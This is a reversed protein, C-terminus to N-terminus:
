AHSVANRIETKFREISLNKVSEHIESTSYAVGTKQFTNLANALSEGTAETFFIGNKGPQIVEQIGGRAISIVPVGLALAEAPGIGFDDEAAFLFCAANGIQQLKEEESVRGLFTVPASLKETIERLEKEVSGGGIIRLPIKTLASAEIMLHIRKNPSLRSASIAYFEESKKTINKPDFYETDIPPYIVTAKQRYFKEIRKAVVDSNAFFSDVRKASITDWLRLRSLIKRAILLTIPNTLGREGLYEHHWDWAYRMPTHCYCLHTTEPGTIIGHSFAGSSSLVVDYGGFDFSEIARPFSALLFPPFKRIPNKQLYSTIVKANPYHKKMVVPDAFLTYIPAEPYLEHFISVVREAGGYTFFFDHVLAIKGM